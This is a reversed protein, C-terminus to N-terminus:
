GTLYELLLKRRKLINSKQWIWGSVSKKYIEDTYFKNLRKILEIKDIEIEQHNKCFRMILDFVVGSKKKRENTTNSFSDVWFTDIAKWLIQNFDKELDDIQEQSLNKNDSLFKDLYLNLKDNYNELSWSMSFYRLVLEQNLLDNSKKNGAVQKIYINEWLKELLKYFSGYYLAKRIEQLSLSVAWQNLRAFIENVIYEPNNRRLIICRMTYNKIDTQHVSNLESFFKWNLSEMISLWDLRFNNKFYNNITTIRQVWDIVDFTWDEFERLYCSPLPIRMLCSEIFKSWKEHWEKDRKYTRQFYPDLKIIKNDVEQILTRFAFDQTYLDLEKLQSEESKHM